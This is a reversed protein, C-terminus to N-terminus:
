KGIMLSITYAAALMWAAILAIPFVTILFTKM